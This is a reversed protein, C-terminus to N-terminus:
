GFIPRVIDGLWGLLAAITGGVLVLVLVCGALCPLWGSDHKQPLTKDARSYAEEFEQRSIEGGWAGWTEAFQPSGPPSLPVASDNWFGYEGPRTIDLPTGDAALSIERPIVGDSEIEIMSLAEPRAEM